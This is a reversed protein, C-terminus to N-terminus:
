PRRPRLLRELTRALDEASGHHFRVVYTEPAAPDGDLKGVVEAAVRLLDEDGSLVISRTRLDPALQIPPAATGQPSFLELLVAAVEVPDENQL